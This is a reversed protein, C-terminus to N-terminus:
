ADSTKISEINRSTKVLILFVGGNIMGGRYLSALKEELVRALLMVRYAKIYDSKAVPPDQKQTPM